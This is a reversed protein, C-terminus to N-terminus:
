VVFIKLMCKSAVEYVAMVNFGSILKVRRSFIKNKKKAFWPHLFIMVASHFIDGGPLQRPDQGLLEALSPPEGGTRCWIVCNDSCALRLRWSWWGANILEPYTTEKDHRAKVLVAGDVDTRTLNAPARSLVGSLSTM